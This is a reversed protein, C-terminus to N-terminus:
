MFGVSIRWCAVPPLPCGKLPSRAPIVWTERQPGLRLIVNGKCPHAPLIKNGPSM